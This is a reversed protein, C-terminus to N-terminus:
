RYRCGLYKQQSAWKRDPRMGRQAAHLAIARDIEYLAALVAHNKSIAICFTLKKKTRWQKIDHNLEALSSVSDDHILRHTDRWCVHMHVTCPIRFDSEWCMRISQLLINIDIDIASISRYQSYTISRICWAAMNPTYAMAKYASTIQSQCM